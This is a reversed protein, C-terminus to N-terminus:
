PPPDTIIRPQLPGYVVKGLQNPKCDGPPNNACRILSNKTETNKQEFISIDIPRDCDDKCTMTLFPDLGGTKKDVFAENNSGYYNFTQNKWNNYTKLIKDPIISNVISYVKFPRGSKPGGVFKAPIPSNPESVNIEIESGNTDIIWSKDSYIKYVTTATLNFIYFNITEEETDQEFNGEPPASYDEPNIIEDCNFYKSKGRNPGFLFSPDIPIPSTGKQGTPSLYYKYSQKTVKKYFIKYTAERKIIVEKFPDPFNCRIRATKILYNNVDTYYPHLRVTNYKRTYLSIIEPCDKGVTAPVLPPSSGVPRPFYDSVLPAKLKALENNRKQTVEEQKAILDQDSTAGDLVSQPPPGIINSFSLTAM